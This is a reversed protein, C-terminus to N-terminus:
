TQAWVPTANWEFTRKANLHLHEPYTKLYAHTVIYKFQFYKKFYIEYCLM